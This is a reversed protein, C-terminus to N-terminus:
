RLGQHTKARLGKSQIHPAVLSHRKQQTDTLSSLAITSLFAWGAPTSSCALLQYVVQLLPQLRLLQQRHLVGPVGPLLALDSGGDQIEEM